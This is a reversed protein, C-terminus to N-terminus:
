LRLCHLTQGETLPEEQIVWWINKYEAAEEFLDFWYDSNEESLKPLMKRIDNLNLNESVTRPNSSESTGSGPGTPGSVGSTSM